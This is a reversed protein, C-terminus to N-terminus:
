GLFRPDSEHAFGCRWNIEHAVHALVQAGEPTRGPVGHGEPHELILVEKYLAPVSLRGQRYAWDTRGFTMVCPQALPGQKFLSRLRPDRMPFPSFMVSLRWADEEDDALMASVLHLVVSSNSFSLLVDYPGNDKLHRIVQEASAEAQKSYNFDVDADNVKEIWHRESSDSVQSTYWGRTPEGKSLALELEGLVIPDTGASPDAPLFDKDGYKLGVEMTWESSGDLFDWDAKPGLLRQLNAITAKMINSNSGGGHLALIRMRRGISHPMPANADLSPPSPLGAGFLLPPGDGATGPSAAQLADTVATDHAVVTLLDKGATKTSVWGEQPGTGSCLWYRLRDGERTLEYVISGSGLRSAAAKSNLAQGHRVIVGGKDGGGVVCWRQSM